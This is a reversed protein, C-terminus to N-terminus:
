YEFVIRKHMSATDTIKLPLFLNEFDSLYTGLQNGV